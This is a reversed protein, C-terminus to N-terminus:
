FLKIDGFITLVSMLKMLEAARDAKPQNERRLHPKLAMILETNKDKENLQSFVEMLKILMDTDINGFIGGNDNNEEGSATNESQEEGGSASSLLGLIASIDGMDAM